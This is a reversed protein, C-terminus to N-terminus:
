HTISTVLWDTDEVAALMARADDIAGGERLATRSEQVAPPEGPDLATALRTLKAELARVATGLTWGGTERFKSADYERSSLSYRALMLEIPDGHVLLQVERANWGLVPLHTALLYHNTDKSASLSPVPVLREALLVLAALGPSVIQPQLWSPVAGDPDLRFAAQIDARGAIRPLCRLAVASLRERDGADWASLVERVTEEFAPTVPCRFAHHLVAM